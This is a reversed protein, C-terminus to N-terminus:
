ESAPPPPITLVMGPRINTGDANITERNADRIRRWLSARGYISKAIGSLTDGKSVVYETTEPADTEDDTTEADAEIPEGTEDVPIGQINEPDLPIRITQGERFRTPDALANAKLISQWHATTGYFKRSISHANDGYQVVYSEFEPPIVRSMAEEISSPEDALVPQQAGGAQQERAVSEPAAGQGPEPAATPTEGFTITLGDGTAREPAPTAWYVVIWLLAMAVAVAALKPRERIM